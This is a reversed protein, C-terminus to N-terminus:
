RRVRLAIRVASILERVNVYLGNLNAFESKAQHLVHRDGTSLKSNTRSISRALSSM